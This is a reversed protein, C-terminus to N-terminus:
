RTRTRPDLSILSLVKRLWAGAHRVALAPRLRLKGDRMEMERNDQRLEPQQILRPSNCLGSQPEIGTEGNAAETSADCCAAIRLEKNPALPKILAHAEGPYGLPSTPAPDYVAAL